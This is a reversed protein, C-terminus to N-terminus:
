IDILVTCTGHNGGVNVAIFFDQGGAMREIEEEDLMERLAPMM